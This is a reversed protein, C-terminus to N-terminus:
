NTKSQNILKLISEYLKGNCVISGKQILDFLEVNREKDYTKTGKFFQISVDNTNDLFWQYDKDSFFDFDPKGVEVVIRFIEIESCKFLNINKKSFHELYNTKSLVKEWVMDSFLNLEEEAVEPKDKKIKAWESADIQQTALFQAFEEHLAEFQEKSLKRYQM